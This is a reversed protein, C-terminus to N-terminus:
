MLLFIFFYFLPLLVDRADNCPSFQYVFYLLPTLFVKVDDYLGFMFPENMFCTEGLVSLDGLSFFLEEDFM